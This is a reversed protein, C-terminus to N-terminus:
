GRDGKAGTAAKGPGDADDRRHMEALKEGLWRSTPVAPAGGWRGGAPIDDHVASAGAIQAGHGITLHGGIGTQGGVAVFDGLTASGSIGVQGVLICGRGIVVNHGIQVQNDIKTGEGIVTDRNAGRDITCNAGIEVDDQVIVRGIQPVKRHGQPSPVYGFGDQGMRVGGHLVVRNGLLSYLVTCGAGIVCDRGIRVSRGVVAGPGIVTGSGIEVDPGVVAFPEVTVGAELRATPDVSAQASVGATATAPGPRLASPYLRGAVLSSGLHPDRVVLVAVGEPLRDAFRRRVLVAGARTVAAKPLYQVKDLFSVQDPGATDLAAVGRILRGRDVNGVPEAGTLGIVDGLTM